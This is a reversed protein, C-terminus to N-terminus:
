ETPVYLMVVAVGFYQSLHQGLLESEVRDLLKLGGNVGHVPDVDVPLLSLSMQHSHARKSRLLFSMQRIKECAPETIPDTIEM